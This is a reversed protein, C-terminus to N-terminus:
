EDPRDGHSTEASLPYHCAVASVNPAVQALLPRVDRCQAKAHPCRPAFACGPPPNTPDPLESTETEAELNRRGPVPASRLLLATYPHRPRTFIQAADGFEVVRGFYM